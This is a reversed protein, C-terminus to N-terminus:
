SIGTQIGPILLCSNFATLAPFSKGPFFSKKENKFRCLSRGAVGTNVYM